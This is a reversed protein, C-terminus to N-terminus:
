VFQLNLTVRFVTGAPKIPVNATVVTGSLSASDAGGIVAVGIPARALQHNIRL